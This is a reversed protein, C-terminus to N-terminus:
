LFMIFALKVIFCFLSMLYIGRGCVMGRAFIEILSHLGLFLITTSVHVMCIYFSTGYMYLSVLFHGIDMGKSLSFHSQFYYVCNSFLGCPNIGGVCGNSVSITHNYWLYM